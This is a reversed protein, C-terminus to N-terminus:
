QNTGLLGFTTATCEDSWRMTAWSLPALSSKTVSQQEEFDSHLSDVIRACVVLPIAFAAPDEKVVNLFARLPQFALTWQLCTRIEPSAGSAQELVTNVFGSTGNKPDYLKSAALGSKVPLPFMKQIYVGSRMTGSLSEPHQAGFFQAAIDDPITSLDTTVFPHSSPSIQGVYITWGFSFSSLNDISLIVSELFKSCTCQMIEKESFESSSAAVSGAFPYLPGNPCQWGIPSLAEVGPWVEEGLISKGALAVAPAHIVTLVPEGVIPERTVLDV